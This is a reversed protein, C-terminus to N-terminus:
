DSSKQGSQTLRATAATGASLGSVSRFKGHVGITWIPLNRALGGHSCRAHADIVPQVSPGTLYASALFGLWSAPNFVTSCASRAPSIGQLGDHFLLFEASDIAEM